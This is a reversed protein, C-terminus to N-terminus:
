WTDNRGCRRHHEPPYYTNDTLVIMAIVFGGVVGVIMCVTGVIWTIM